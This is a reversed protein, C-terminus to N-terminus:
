YALSISHACKMRRKDVSDEEQGTLVYARTLNGGKDDHPLSRDKMNIMM